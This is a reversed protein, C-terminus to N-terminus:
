APWRVLMISIEAPRRSLRMYLLETRRRNYGVHLEAKRERQVGEANERDAQRAVPLQAVLVVARHVRRECEAMQTQTEGGRPRM